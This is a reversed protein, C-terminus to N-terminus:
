KFFRHNFSSLEYVGNSRQIMSKKKIQQIQSILERSNRRIIRHFGWPLRCFDYPYGVSIGVSIVILFNYPFGVSAQLLRGYSICSFESVENFLFLEVSVFSGYSKYIINCRQVGGTAQSLSRVKKPDFCRTNRINEKIKMTKATKPNFCRHVQM